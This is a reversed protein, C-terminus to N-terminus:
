LVFAGVSGGVLMVLLCGILRGASFKLGYGKGDKDQGNSVMDCCLLGSFIEAM